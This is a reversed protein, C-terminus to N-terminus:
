PPLKPIGGAGNGVGEPRGSDREGDEVSPCRFRVTSCNLGPSLSLSLFNCDISAVHMWYYVKVPQPRDGFVCWNSQQGRRERPGYKYFANM